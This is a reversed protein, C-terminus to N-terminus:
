IGRRGDAFSGEEQLSWAGDSVEPRGGAREVQVVTDVNNPSVRAIDAM